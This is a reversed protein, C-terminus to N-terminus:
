SVASIRVAAKTILKLTRNLRERWKPGEARADEYAEALDEALAEILFAAQLRDKEAKLGLEGRRRDAVNLKHIAFREPKPNQVLM